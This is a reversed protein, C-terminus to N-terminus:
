QEPTPPEAPTPRGTPPLERLNLEMTQDLYEDHTTCPKRSERALRRGFVVVGWVCAFAGGALGAIFFEQNGARGYFVGLAILLAGLVIWYYPANEYIFKPVFM